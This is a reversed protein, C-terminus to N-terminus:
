IFNKMTKVLLSFSVVFYTKVGFKDISFDLMKECTCGKLSKKAAPVSVVAIAVSHANASSILWGITSSFARLSISLTTLFLLNTWSDSTGFRGYM